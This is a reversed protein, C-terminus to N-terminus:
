IKWRPNNWDIIRIIKSKKCILENNDYFLINNCSFQYRCLLFAWFTADSM